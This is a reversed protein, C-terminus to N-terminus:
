GLCFDALQGRIFGLDWTQVALDASQDGLPVSEAIPMQLREDDYTQMHASRSPASPSASDSVRPFCLAQKGRMIPDHIWGSSWLVARILVHARAMVPSNRLGLHVLMPRCREEIALREIESDELCSLVAVRRRTDGELERISDLTDAINWM